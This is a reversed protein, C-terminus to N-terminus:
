RIFSTTSGDPASPNAASNLRDTMGLLRAPIMMLPPLMSAAVIVIIKFEYISFNIV